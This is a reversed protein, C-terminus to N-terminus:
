AFRERNPPFQFLNLQHPPQHWPLDQFPADLFGPLTEEEPRGKGFDPGVSETYCGNYTM